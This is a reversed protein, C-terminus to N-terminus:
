LICAMSVTGYWEMGDCGGEVAHSGRKSGPLLSFVLLRDVHSVHSVLIVWVSVSPLARLTQVFPLSPLLATRSCVEAGGEVLVVAAHCELHQHPPASLQRGVASWFVTLMGGTRVPSRSVLLPAGDDEEMEGVVEVEAEAEADVDVVDAADIDGPADVFDLLLLLLPLAARELADEEEEEDEAKAEAAPDSM